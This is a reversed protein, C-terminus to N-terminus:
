GSGEIDRHSKEWNLGRLFLILKKIGLIGMDVDREDYTRIHKKMISVFNVAILCSLINKHMKTWRESSEGETGKSLSVGVQAAFYWARSILANLNSNRVASCSRRSKAIKLAYSLFKVSLM